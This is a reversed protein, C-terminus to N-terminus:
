GIEFEIDIVNEDERRAQDLTLKVRWFKDEMPVHSFITLINDKFNELRKHFNM